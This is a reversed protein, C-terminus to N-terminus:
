AMSVAKLYDQRKLHIIYGDDRVGHMALENAEATRLLDNETSKHQFHLEKIADTYISCFSYIDTGLRTVHRVAIEESM